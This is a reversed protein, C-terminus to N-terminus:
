FRFSPDVIRVKGRVIKVNMYPDSRAEISIFPALNHAIENAMNELVYKSAEEEGLVDVMHPDVRSEVAITHCKPHEVTVMPMMTPIDPKKYRTGCYECVYTHPNITGGCNTCQLKEM